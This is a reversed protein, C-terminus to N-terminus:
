GNALRELIPEPVGAEGVTIPASFKRGQDDYLQAMNMSEGCVRVWMEKGAVGMHMCVESYPLELRVAGIAVCVAEFMEELLDHEADNSGTDPDMAPPCDYLWGDRVEVTVKM